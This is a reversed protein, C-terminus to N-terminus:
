GSVGAKKLQRDLGKTQNPYPLNLRKRQQRVFSRAEDATIQKSKVLFVLDPILSALEDKNQPEYNVTVGPKVSIPTRQTLLPKEEPRNADRSVCGSGCVLGILVACSIANRGVLNM